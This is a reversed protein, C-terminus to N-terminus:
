LKSQLELVEMCIAPSIEYGPESTYSEVQLKEIADLGVIKPLLLFKQHTNIWTDGIECTQLGDITKPAHNTQCIHNEHVGPVHIHKSCLEERTAAQIAMTKYGHLTFKGKGKESIVITVVPKLLDKKEVGHLNSNITSGAIFTITLFTKLIKM